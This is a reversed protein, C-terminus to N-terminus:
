PAQCSGALAAQGQRLVQANPAQPDAYTALAETIQAATMFASVCSLNSDRVRFEARDERVGLLELTTGQGARCSARAFNESARRRIAQETVIEMLKRKGFNAM